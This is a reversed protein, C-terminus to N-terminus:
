TTPLSPLPHGLLSTANTSIGKIATANLRNDGTLTELATVLEAPTQDDPKDAYTFTGRAADSIEIIKGVAITGTIDMKTAPVAGDALQTTDVSGDPPTTSPPPIWAFNNGNNVSLINGPTATGSIDMRAISIANNAIGLTDTGTLTANKRIKRATISNDAPAPINRWETRGGEITIVQGNTATEIDIKNIPITVDAIKPGTISLNAYKATTISGDGVAGLELWNTNVGPEQNSGVDNQLLWMKNNHKVVSFKHYGGTDSWDGRFYERVDLATNSWHATSGTGFKEWIQGEVFNYTNSGFVVNDENSVIFMLSGTPITDLRPDFAGTNAAFVVTKATNAAIASAQSATIGTKASNALIADTQAQTIGTKASNTTIADAQSQTIGTKANNTTIDSAQEATIGVKATNLGIAAAQAATAGDTANVAVSELKNKEPQTFPIAVSLPSDTDGDGSLTNDHEINFSSLSRESEIAAFALARETTQEIALGSYPSNPINYDDIKGPVGDLTIRIKDDSDPATTFTITPTQGRNGDTITIGTTQAVDDIYVVVDTAGQLCIFSASPPTFVRTTGDGTIKYERYNKWDFALAM